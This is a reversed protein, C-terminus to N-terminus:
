MTVEGDQISELFPVLYKETVEKLITFLAEYRKRAAEEETEGLYVEGTVRRGTFKDVLLKM